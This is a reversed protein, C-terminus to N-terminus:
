KYKVGNREGEVGGYLYRWNWDLLVCDVKTKRKVYKYSGERVM